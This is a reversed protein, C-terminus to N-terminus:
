RKSAEGQWPHRGGAALVGGGQRGEGDLGGVKFVLEVSVEVLGLHSKILTITYVLWDYSKSYAKGAVSGEETM